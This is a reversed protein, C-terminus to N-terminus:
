GTEGYPFLLPYQLPDYCGYYHLVRQSGSSKRHVIIDRTKNSASEKEVWIAAVQSTTPVNYTRQDLNPNTKIVICQEEDIDIHKLKSKALMNAVSITFPTGQLQTPTAKPSSSSGTPEVIDGKIKNRQSNSM